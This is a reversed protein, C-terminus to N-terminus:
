FTQDHDKQGDIDERTRSNEANYALRLRHKFEVKFTTSGMIYNVIAKKGQFKLSSGDEATAVEGSDDLISYYAGKAEIYGYKSGLTILDLADLFGDDYSLVTQGKRRDPTCIKTKLISFDIVNGYPAVSAANSLRNFSDDVFHGKSFLVRLICNHKWARGGPTTIGGYPSNMDERVQNVGILCVNYKRCLQISKKSFVTLASSIGAYTKELVTKDFAQKSLMAGLSDIVLLGVQGTEMLEICLDFIEEASEQEPNMVYLDNVDVGLKKMWAEDITNECDVYVVTQKGRDSLVKYANKSVADTKLELAELQESYEKKFIAQASGVIGFATSSKTSGEEGAFEVIGQRPLGGYTMYNLCESLAPIRAINSHVNMGTSIVCRKHEKNLKDIVDQLM